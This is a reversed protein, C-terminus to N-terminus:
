VTTKLITRNKTSIAAFENLNMLFILAKRKDVLFNPFM